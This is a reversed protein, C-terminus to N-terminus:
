RAAWESLRLRASESLTGSTNSRWIEALEALHQNIRGIESIAGYRSSNKKHEIIEAILELKRNAVRVELEDPQRKATRTQNTSM